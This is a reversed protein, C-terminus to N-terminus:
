RRGLLRWDATIDDLYVTGSSNEFIIEFSAVRTEDFGAVTGYGWDAVSFFSMDVNFEMWDNGEFSLHHDTANTYTSYITGDADVLQVNFDGSTGNPHIQFWVSEVKTFDVPGDDIQRSVGCGWGDPLTVGTYEIRLSYDGESAVTGDRAISIASGVGDAILAWSATSDSEFRDIVIDGGGFWGFIMNCSSLSMVAVALVVLGLVRAMKM